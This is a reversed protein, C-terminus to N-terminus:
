QRQTHVTKAYAAASITTILGKKFRSFVLNFPLSKCFVPHYKEEDTQRWSESEREGDEKDRRCVSRAFSVSNQAVYISLNMM